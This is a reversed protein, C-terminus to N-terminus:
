GATAPVRARFAVRLKSSPAWHRETSLERPGDSTVTWEYGQVLENVFARATMRSLAEGTCTRHGIGFPAYTDRSYPRDIFRDPNFRDPDEYVTPDRHSEHVCARVLWGSPILFDRFPLDRAARLYVYESQELRITESGIRDVLDTGVLLDERARGIWEPNDSLHKFIWMLLGSVDERTTMATYMLNRITTPDSLADARQGELERALSPGSGEKVAALRILHELRGLAALIRDDPLPKPRHVGLEEFLERVEPFGPDDASIGLLVEAWAELVIERVHALPAVATGSTRCEQEMRALGNAMARAIARESSRLFPESLARAFVRRHEVHEPGNKWRLLDGPVFSNYAPDPFSVLDDAFTRFIERAASIGVVCVMPEGFHNSKFVPGFRRAGKAFFDPDTIPEPGMGLSGPPWHERRGRSPRARWTLVAGAVAFLLVAALFARLDVVLLVVLVFVDLAFLRSLSAHYRPALRRLNPNCVGTFSRVPRGGVWVMRRVFLWSRVGVRLLGVLPRPLKAAVGSRHTTLMLQIMGVTFIEDRWTLNGHVVDGWGLRSAGVGLCRLEGVNSRGEHEVVVPM